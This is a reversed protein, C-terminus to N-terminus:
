AITNRNPVLILNHAFTENQYKAVTPFVKVIPLIVHYERYIDIVIIGREVWFDLFVWM